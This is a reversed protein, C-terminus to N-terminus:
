RIGVPFPALGGAVRVMQKALVKLLTEAVASRTRGSSTAVRHIIWSRNLVDAERMSAEAFLRRMVKPTFYQIHGEPMLYPTGPQRRVLNWNGTGVYVVGGVRACSRLFALLGKPDPVHEIVEIASVVDFTGKMPELQADSTLALGKSACSTAAWASSDTGFVEAGRGRAQELLGGTGCGVDLWRLGEISGGMAESVTDLVADNAARASQTVPADYDVTRDFGQGRYYRADYLEDLRGDPIRPDVRVHGCPTCSVITFDHAVAVGRKTMVERSEASGCLPCPYSQLEYPGYMPCDSPTSADSHM